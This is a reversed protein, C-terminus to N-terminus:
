TRKRARRTCFHAGIFGVWLPHTRTSPLDLLAVSPGDGVFIQQLDNTDFYIFSIVFFFTRRLTLARRGM